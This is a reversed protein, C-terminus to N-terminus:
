ARCLRLCAGSVALGALLVLVAVRATLPLRGDGRDAGFQRKGQSWTAAGAQADM